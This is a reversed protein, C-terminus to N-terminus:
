GHCFLCTDTYMYTSDPAINQMDSQRRRGHSNPQSHHERVSTSVSDTHETTVLVTAAASATGAANSVFCQYVGAAARGANRVLLGGDACM